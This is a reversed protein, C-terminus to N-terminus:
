SNIYKGQSSVHRYVETWPNGGLYYIIYIILMDADKVM